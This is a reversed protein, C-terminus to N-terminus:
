NKSTGINSTRSSDQALGEAIVRIFRQFGCNAATNLRNFNVGKFGFDNMGYFKTKMHYDISFKANGLHQSLQKAVANVDDLVNLSHIEVKNRM